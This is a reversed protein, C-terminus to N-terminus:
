ISHHITQGKSIYCVSQVIQISKRYMIGRYVIVENPNLSGSRKESCNEAVEVLCVQYRIYKIACSLFLVSLFCLVLYIRITVSDRKDVNIM